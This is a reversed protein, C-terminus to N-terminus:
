SDSIFHVEFHNSSYSLNGDTSMDTTVSYNVVEVQLTDTASLFLITDSAATKRRSADTNFQVGSYFTATGTSGNRKLYVSGELAADQHFNM